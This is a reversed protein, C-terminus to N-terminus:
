YNDNTSGVGELWGMEDLETTPEEFSCSGFSIAKTARIDYVQNASIELDRWTLTQDTVRFAASDPEILIATIVDTSVNKSFAFCAAVFVNLYGFLMGFEPNTAYTLPYLGQMPHHLGATAKFGVNLRACNSIFRAVESESPILDLTIGGTRIKAFLNNGTDRIQELLKTPDEAHPIELFVNMGSPMDAITARVEDVTSAKIEVSDVVAQPQQNATHRRNFHEISVIAQEFAGNPSGVSPILASIQWNWGSAGFSDISEIEELRAVPLILRALMWSYDSGLYHSFNDVAQDLSLNAPPFLGAYDIIGSVLNKVVTMM